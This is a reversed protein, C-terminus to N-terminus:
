KGGLENLLLVHANIYSTCQILVHLVRDASQPIEEDHVSIEKSSHCIVNLIYIARFDSLFDTPIILFYWM